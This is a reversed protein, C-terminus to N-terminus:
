KKKKKLCFVAYSIRILSQLESTHEESRRSESTTIEPNIPRNKQCLQRMGTRNAGRDFVFDKGSQQCRTFHKIFLRQRRTKRNRARRHALGHQLKNLATQDLLFGPTASGDCLEIQPAEDM